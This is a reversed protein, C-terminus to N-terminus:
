RLKCSKTGKARGVINQEDRSSVEKGMNDSIHIFSYEMKIIHVFIRKVIILLIIKTQLM